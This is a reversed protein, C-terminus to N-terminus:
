VSLCASVLLHVETTTQTSVIAKVSFLKIKIVAVLKVKESLEFDLGAKYLHAFNFIIHTLITISKRSPLFSRQKPNHSVKETPNFQLDRTRLKSM